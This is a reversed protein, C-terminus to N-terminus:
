YPKNPPLNTEKKVYIPIKNLDLITAGNEDFEFAPEFRANWVIEDFKYSYHTRVINAFTDDYSELIVMIELDSQDDMTKCIQVPSDASLPHVITWSLPLMSLTNRELELPRYMRREKGEKNTAVWAAIVEVRLNTLMNKRENALRFMFAEGDRYSGVIANESFLIRVNPKSFRAFLLGTALAFALLGSFAGFAAILNAGFGEPSISGYGVTTITQVSFFFATWFPPLGDGEAGSLHEVGNLLYLGAFFCNMCFYVVLTLCAFKWWSVSIVWQYLHLDQFSNSVRYVNFTGDKNIFRKTKKSAFSSFGMDYFTEKPKKRSSHKNAPNVFHRKAM